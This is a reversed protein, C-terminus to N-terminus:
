WLEDQETRSIPQSCPTLKSGGFLLKAPCGTGSEIVPSPFRFGVADAHTQPAGFDFVGEHRNRHVSINHFSVRLVRCFESHVTFFHKFKRLSHSGICSDKACLFGLGQIWGQCTAGGRKPRSPRQHLAQKLCTNRLNRRSAQAHYGISQQPSFRAWLGLTGESTKGKAHRGVLFRRACV